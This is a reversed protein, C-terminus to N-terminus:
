ERISVGVTLAVTSDKLGQNSLCPICNFVTRSATVRDMRLM